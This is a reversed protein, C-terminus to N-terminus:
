KINKYEIENKVLKEADANINNEHSKMAELYNQVEEL